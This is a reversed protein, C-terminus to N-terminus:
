MKLSSKKLDTGTSPENRRISNSFAVKKEKKYVSKISSYLLKYGIRYPKCMIAYAIPIAVSSTVTLNYSLWLFENARKNTKGKALM